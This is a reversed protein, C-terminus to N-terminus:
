SRVAMLSEPLWRRKQDDNGGMQNRRGWRLCVCYRRHASNGVLQELIVEFTLYGLDSGGFTEACSATWGM